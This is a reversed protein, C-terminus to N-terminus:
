LLESAQDVARGIEFMTAAFTAVPFLLVLPYLTTQDLAIITVCFAIVLVAALVYAAIRAPSLSRYM